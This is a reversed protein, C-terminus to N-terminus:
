KEEPLFKLSHEGAFRLIRLLYMEHRASEPLPLLPAAGPAAPSAGYGPGSEM